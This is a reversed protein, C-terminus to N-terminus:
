KGVELVIVQWGGLKVYAGKLVDGVNVDQGLQDTVKVIKKDKLYSVIGDLHSDTFNICFVYEGVPTKWSWALMSHAHHSFLGRHVELQQWGGEYLKTDRILSFIREYLASVEPVFEESTKRSLHVPVRIKRGDFQGEHYLHAGPLIALVYEAVIHQPLPMRGAREEDHNETFRLLKDQYPATKKIHAQLEHLSHETLYDYLEKDYCLDFGQDLLDHEKGWYVEALFLFDPRVAKVAGILGPWYEETPVEGARAGWTGKFIDNMMLMAMDCRLADCMDAVRVLTSKLEARLGPSFANLQLVDSWAEFHPDRGRAFIGQPTQVFSKPDAEMEEATAYLFYEPHEAVWHHDIGVHNPVYDLMLRIGRRQLQERAVALGEEGGYMDAVQYEEISYASGVIDGDKLDPLADKLWPENLAMSRGLSSRKWIGMFWVMDFGRRAIDDWVYEPVSAFSVGRGEKESLERLFIPTNIEYILPQKSM